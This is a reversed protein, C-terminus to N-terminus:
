ESTWLPVFVYPYFNMSGTAANPIKVNSSLSLNLDGTKTLWETGADVTAYVGSDAILYFLDDDYPFGGSARVRFSGIGNMTARSFTGTIGTTSTRLFTASAEANLEWAYARNVNNTARELWFRKANQITYTGQGTSIGGDISLDSFAAGANISRKFEVGEFFHTFNIIVEDGDTNGAYPAQAFVPICGLQLSEPSTYVQSWTAGKNDSRYAYCKTNTAKAGKGVTAYLRLSGSITHPVIDMGGGFGLIENAPFGDQQSVVSYSWSDTGDETRAFYVRNSDDMHLGNGMCFMYGIYGSQNISGVMKFGWKYGSAAKGTGTGIAARTLVLSWSPTALNMDVSKYMGDESALYATSQPQWPDLIFDWYNITSDPHINTWSPSAAGLNRTRALGRVTMVYATGFGDGGTVPPEEIPPPEPPVPPPDPLDVATPVPFTFASGGIGNVSEEMDLTVMPIGAESNYTIQTGTPLFVKNDWEIGRPNLTPSLSMSVRSQPVSDIRAYTSLPVTVKGFEINQKARMNGSWIILTDQGDTVIGKSIEMETGFYGQVRGPSEAGFKEARANARSAVSLLRVLSRTPYRRVPIGITGMKDEDRIHMSVPLGASGGTVQVDAMGYLNGQMDSAFYGLIGKDTYNSKLQNWLAGRPLDQGFMFGVGGDMTFNASPLKTDTMVALTSRHNILDLTVRDLNLDTHKIWEKADNEFFFVDYSDTKALVGNLSNAKFTVMGSFPNIAVSEDEVWGRFVINERFPFNGGIETPSNGYSASEFIVIEARPPIKVTTGDQNRVMFTAGYGGDQLGGTITAFQVEPLQSEDDFVFTLRQSTNVKGNAATVALSVYRGDSLGTSPTSYVRTVPAAETGINIDTGTGEPFIWSASGFTTGVYQTFEGVYKITAIGGDIIGAAPPGMLVNPAVVTFQNSYVNSYDMRWQDSSFSYRPHKVWPEYLDLVTFHNGAKLTMLGCGSEAIKANTTTIADRLRTRGLDSAGATSGIFVTMDSATNGVSGVPADESLILSSTPFHTADSALTTAYVTSPRHVALYWKARQPRTRLLNKQATTFAIRM